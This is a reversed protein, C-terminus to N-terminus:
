KATIKTINLSTFKQRHGTKTASDKKVRYKFSVVKDGLTQKLVKAEVKVDDLYPQGIRIDSGNAYALVKEFVITEGDKEKMRHADILDGETVKFQSAGLQVVAYMSDEKLNIGSCKLLLTIAQENNFYM